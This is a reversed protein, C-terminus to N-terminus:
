GNQHSAIFDEIYASDPEIGTSLYQQLLIYVYSLLVNEKEKSPRNDRLYDNTANFLSRIYADETLLGISEHRVDAGIGVSFLIDAHLSSSIEEEPMELGSLIPIFVIPNSLDDVPQKQIEVRVPASEPEELNLNEVVLDVMGFSTMAETDSDDGVAETKSPYVDSPKEAEVARGKRLDEIIELERSNFPYGSEELLLIFPAVSSLSKAKELRSSVKLADLLGDESLSEYVEPLLLMTDENAGEIYLLVGLKGAAKRKIFESEEASYGSLAGDLEDLYISVVEETRRSAELRLLPEGKEQPELTTCSSLLFLSLLISIIFRM